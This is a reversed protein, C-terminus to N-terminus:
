YHPSHTVTIEQRELKTVSHTPNMRCCPTEICCYSTKLTEVTLLARGESKAMNTKKGEATTGPTQGTSPHIKMVLSRRIFRGIHHRTRVVKSSTMHVYM